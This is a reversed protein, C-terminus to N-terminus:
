RKGIPEFHFHRAIALNIVHGKSATLRRLFQLDDAFDFVFAGGSRQDRKRGIWRNERDRGLKFELSERGPQAFQREEIGPQFNRQRVLAAVLRLLFYKDVLVADFFEYLLKAFVFLHNMGFRYQNRPLAVLNKDIDDQLVVVAIVVLNQRERIRNWIRVASSM